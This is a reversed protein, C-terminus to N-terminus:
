SPQNNGISLDNSKYPTLHSQLLYDYKQKHAAALNASAASHNDLLANYVIYEVILTQLTDPIREDISSSVNQAKQAKCTYGLIFTLIILLLM